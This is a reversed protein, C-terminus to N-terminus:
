LGTNTKIWQRATVVRGYVGPQMRQACGVGWSVIGILTPENTEKDFAVLPGGSDGQCATITYILRNSIM